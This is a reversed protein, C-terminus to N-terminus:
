NKYDMGLYFYSALTYRLVLGAISSLVQLVFLFRTLNHETMPGTVLLIM